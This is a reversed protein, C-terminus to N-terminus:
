EMIINVLFKLFSCLFVFVPIFAKYLPITHSSIIFIKVPIKQYTKYSLFTITVVLSEHISYLFSDIRLQLLRAYAVTQAIIPVIHKREFFKVMTSRADLKTPDLDSYSLTKFLFSMLYKVDHCFVTGNLAEVEM